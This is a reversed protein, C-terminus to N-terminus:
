RNGVPQHFLWCKKLQFQFGQLPGKKEVADRAYLDQNLNLPDEVKANNVSCLTDAHM